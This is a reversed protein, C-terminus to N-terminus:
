VTALNFIGKVVLLLFADVKLERGKLERGPMVCVHRSIYVNLGLGSTGLICKESM